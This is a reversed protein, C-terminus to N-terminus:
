GAQAPFCERDPNAGAVYPLAQIAPLESAAANLLIAHIEPIVDLVQGHQGLNALLADTVPQSLLVNIGIHQDQARVPPTPLAAALLIGGALLGIVHYSRPM